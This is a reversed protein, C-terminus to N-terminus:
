SVTTRSRRRQSSATRTCGCENEPEFAPTIPAPQFDGFYAVYRVLSYLLPARESMWQSLGALLLAVMSAGIAHLVSQEVGRKNFRIMQAVSFVYLAVMVAAVVISATGLWMPLYALLAVFAVSVEFDQPPLRLSAAVVDRAWITALLGLFLHAITLVPRAVPHEWALRLKPAVWVTFAMAFFAGALLIMAEQEARPQPHDSTLSLAVVVILFGSLQLRQVNTLRYLRELLSKM